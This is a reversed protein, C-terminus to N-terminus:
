VGVSPLFLYLDIPTFFSVQFSVGPDAKGLYLTYLCCHFHKIICLDPRPELYNHGLCLKLLFSIIHGSLLLLHVLDVLHPDLLLLLPVKCPFILLEM